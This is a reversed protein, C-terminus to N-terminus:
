KKYEDFLDKYNHNNEECIYEQIQWEPHLQLAGAIKFPAAFVNPDEITAEYQIKDFVPRSYREVVHYATSHRYGGVATKDNFGTVDVVLTDGEWHGVSNGLWTPDLDSPHPRGDTPIVRFLHYAEYLIVVSDPKEIIQLPYPQETAGPVGPPLCHEGLDGGYDEGVKYKEAGPKLAINGVPRLGFGGIYVGSLDPTGDALHPIPRNALIDGTPTPAEPAPTTGAVTVTLSKQDAGGRGVARLTYTTTVAPTVKQSGRTEVVGVGQDVTIRDANVVVWTLTVSQGPQISNPEAAFSLIKAPPGLPFGSPPVGGPNQAHTAVSCALVAVFAAVMALVSGTMREKM